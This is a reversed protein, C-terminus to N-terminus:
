PKPRSRMVLGASERLDIGNGARLERAARIM